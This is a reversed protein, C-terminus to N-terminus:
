QPKLADAVIRAVVQQGDLGAQEAAALFGADPSLCPNPNIELVWPRGATDVRFDVRAYGRLGFRRWCDAAIQRLQALLPADAPDFAFRRPTAQFEFTNEEWKARHGVVRPKGAPFASFDIEAPPLVEPGFDGALVSLNFERGEIFQEAFCPRGLQQAAEALRRHLAPEDAFRGVSHEDLGFSAHEAITKIIWTQSFPDSSNQPQFVTKVGENARWDPTPLGTERLRQKTLLKHNAICMAAAPVGTYPLGLTDLLAPALFMLGDSGGLSEVLNFVVDPHLELLRRRASELDLTCALTENTHGLQGLARGVFEAQVLVDREAAPADPAVANHLIVVRM